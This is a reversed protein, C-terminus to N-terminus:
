PSGALSLLFTLVQITLGLDLVGHKLRERFTELGKRSIFSFRHVDLDIEFYDLGQKELSFAYINRDTIKQVQKNITLHRFTGYKV